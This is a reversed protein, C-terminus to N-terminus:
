RCVSRSRRTAAEDLSRAIASRPVDLGIEVMAEKFQERDEATAIATADAGIMEPTGPM